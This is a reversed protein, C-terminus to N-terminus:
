GAVQDVECVTGITYQLQVPSPLPGQTRRVDRASNSCDEGGIDHAIAAQSPDILFACQRAQPPQTVLKYIRCNGIMTTPDYFRGTVANQDFTSFQLTIDIYTNAPNNSDAPVSVVVDALQAFYIPKPAPVTATPASGDHHNMGLFAFTGGIGAGLLTIAIIGNLMVKKM